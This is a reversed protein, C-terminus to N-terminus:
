KLCELCYTFLLTHNGNLSQFAIKADEPSKFDVLAATGQLHLGTYDIGQQSLVEHLTEEVPAGGIYGDDTAVNNLEFILQTM